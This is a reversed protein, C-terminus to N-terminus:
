RQPMLFNRRCDQSCFELLHGQVIDHVVRSSPFFCSCNHCRTMGGKDISSHLSAPQQSGRSAFPGRGESIKARRQQSAAGAPKWLYTAIMMTAVFALTELLM